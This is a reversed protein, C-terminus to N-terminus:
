EYYSTAYQKYEDSPNNSETYWKAQTLYMNKYYGNKSMLEPHSGSEIVEGDKLVIINDAHKCSGLRHTVTITTKGETIKHFLDLMNSEAVPDLSSTPEDFFIIEAEKFLARAIAIKQWEGGSLDIGKSFYVGLEKNLDNIKTLLSDGEIQNLISVVKEDTDLCDINSLCINERLTMYYKTFDQFIASINKSVDIDCLDRGDYQITGPVSEYLGSICKVLTSKGSGNDGVIALREGKKISFTINRLTDSELGPYRFTLDNIYINDIFKHHPKIPLTTEVEIFRFFDSLYPSQNIIFAFGNSLMVVTTIATGLSQSISVYDGVTYNQSVIIYLLSILFLLNMIFDFLTLLINSKLKLKSLKYNEKLTKSYYLAWKNLILKSHQFIRLEKVAERTKLLSAYYASRRDNESQEVNVFYEKKGVKLSAISNPVLIILLSVVLLWHFSFLIIVLGTLTIVQRLIDLVHSVIQIGKKPNNYLLVRLLHKYIKRKDGKYFYPIIYKLYDNRIKMTLADDFFCIILTKMNSNMM